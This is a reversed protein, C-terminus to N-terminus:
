LERGDRLKQIMVKLDAIYSDSNPSLNHEFANSAESLIAFFKNLEDNSELTIVYQRKQETKM